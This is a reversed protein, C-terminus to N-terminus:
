LSLAIKYVGTIGFLNEWIIIGYGGLIDIHDDQDLDVLHIDRNHSGGADGIDMQQWKTSKYNKGPNEIGTLTGGDNLCVIDVDNDHDLDACAFGWCDRKMLCIYTGSIATKLNGNNFWILMNGYIDGSIIDPYGNGDMDFTEVDNIVVRTTIHGFDLERSDVTQLTHGTWIDGDLPSDDNEWITVVYSYDDSFKSVTAIDLDGDSDMDNISLDRIQSDFRYHESDPELYAVKYKPILAFYSKSIIM